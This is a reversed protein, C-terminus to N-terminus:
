NKQETLSGVALLKFGNFLLNPQEAQYKLRKIDVANYITKLTSNLPTFQKLFKNCANSIGVYGHPIRMLLKFLLKNISIVSNHHTYVVKPKRLFSFFQYVLGTVLHSHVVDPSFKSVYKRYALIGKLLNRRSGTPLIFCPIDLDTLEQLFLKEYEFSRGISEANSIFLIAPTHGSKKAEVVLDKVYVEAGGAAPAALMHLIKM